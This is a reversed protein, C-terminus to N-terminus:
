LGTQKRILAAIDPPVEMVSLRAQRVLAFEKMSPEKKCQALTMPTRAGKLPKLDVVAHKPEKQPTREPATAPDDYAAATVIALGVIAKEDGTHYVFVHDGKKMRRLAILAGANSVGDWCCSGDAQLSAFSYESPETKVLFTNM